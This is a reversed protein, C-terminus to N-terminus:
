PEGDPSAPESGEDPKPQDPTEGAPQEPQQPPTETGDDQKPPVVLASNPAASGPQESPAQGAPRGADPAAPQTTPTGPRRLSSEGPPPAQSPDIRIVTPQPGGTQLLPTIRPTPPTPAPPAFAIRTTWKNMNDLRYQAEIRHPTNETRPDSLISRYSKEAEGLDGREEALYALGFRAACAILFEGDHQDVIRQYLRRAEDAHKDVATANNADRAAAMAEVASDAARKLAMASALPSVNRDAVEVYRRVREEPQQAVARPASGLTQWIEDREAAGRGSLMIWAVIAVVVVGTGLVLFVANRRMFDVAAEIQQALENERLEHRRATKM